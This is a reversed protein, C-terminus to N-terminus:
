PPFRLRSFARGALKAQREIETASVLWGRQELFLLFARTSVKRRIAAAAFSADGPTADSRTM